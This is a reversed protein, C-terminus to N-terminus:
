SFLLLFWKQIFPVALFGLLLLALSVRRCPCPEDGLDVVGIGEKTRTTTVAQADDGKDIIRLDDLLNKAVYPLPIRGGSRRGDNM